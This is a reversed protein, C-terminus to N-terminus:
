IDEFKVFQYAWYNLFTTKSKFQYLANLFWANKHNITM